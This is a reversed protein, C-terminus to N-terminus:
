HDDGQLSALIIWISQFGIVGQHVELKLKVNDCPLQKLQLTVDIGM